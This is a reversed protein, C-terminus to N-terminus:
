SFTNKRSTYCVIKGYSGEYSNAQSLQTCWRLTSNNPPPVGRGLLYVMFRKDIEAMVVETNWGRRSVEFLIQMASSHLPPLELRTDAYMVTLSKPRPILGKEILDLTLTVLTTSDKGGSFSIQWHQFDQAYTNFSKITETIATQSTARFAEFMNLQRNM